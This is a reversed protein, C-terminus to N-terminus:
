ISRATDQDVATGQLTRARQATDPGVDPAQEAAQEVLAEPVAQGHQQVGAEAAVRQLLEIEHFNDVVIRGIGAAVATRLEEESKNNGHFDIEGAPFGAALAVALEGGSVVDLTAITKATILPEREPLLCIGTGLKIRRTVGAALALGVFPDMWGRHAAAVLLYGDVPLVFGANMM